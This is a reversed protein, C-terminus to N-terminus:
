CQSQGKERLGKESAWMAIQTRSAFGLKSLINEIHKEVTRYNVVLIDAIERNARGQAILSAVERERETLGGFVRRAARRPSLPEQRPFLATAQQLFHTRLSPDPIPAALERILEHAFAFAHEAEEDRQQAHYLTGLDLAIRWQLPRTGQMMAGAQAAQLAAEAEVTQRLLMLAKGRLHSLRPIVSESSSNAASMILQEVIHLALDADGQALALEARASWALRQGMRRTQPNLLTGLVSEAQALDHQQVCVLALLSTVMRVWSPSSTEHALALAWELHRQAVSPAFLDLYLAGLIWHAETMWRRHEIEELISLGAQLAELAPAYEGHPGLSCGLYILAYAELSRHGIECALQLAVEGHGLSEAVSAAAPVLLDNQYNTGMCLMLILLCSAVRQRDDLERFVAIAQEYSTRAEILDGGGYSLLGLFELTEAIGRQDNVQQFISLAEQHCRLAERPQAIFSYRDGMHNLTHAQLLPNALHQALELARQFWEAARQYDRKAWLSGLALASQWEHVGNHTQHAAERAQEYDSLAAEFEGLTEYAQGRTHYLPPSPPLALSSASDLARTYHEIAARSAYLRQAQDGARQAYELAKQWLGAEYFHYALEALHMDLTTSYLRVMTEAITRHLLRRERMLLQTYVAERTLAHRFAFQESSEEVVLQAAMLEKILPLLQQEDHDMVQQLIAFDFRRGAVAALLVLQRAPESLHEVRRQVADQISRPIHLEGLPKREWSGDASVIKGTAILSKLIEEIFFPNGETLTYIADLAEPPVPRQLKFIAQLMAGTESRTLHTLVIEHALRERDVHALWQRLSPGIEDSRYTLLVLLPQRACHRGLYQLFELSTDDSWHMDEVILLLPHAAAQTLFFHALAAFLRRKEQEPDLSPLPPLSALEPFLLPVEPLLPALERAFPAVSMAFQAAPTHLFVSRLVDLLPAYPCSRDTPFCQGQLFQFGQAFVATKLEAVLRSKGIGAEGGLLCIQGKGSIVEDILKHFVAIEDTRGILIPCIVPQNFAGTM